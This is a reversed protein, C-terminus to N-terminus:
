DNFAIPRLTGDKWPQSNADDIGSWFCFLRGMRQLPEKAKLM